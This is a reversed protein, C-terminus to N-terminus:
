VYYNCPITAAHYLISTVNSSSLSVTPAPFSVRPKFSIKWLVQKGTGVPPECGATSGTEPIQQGRRAGTPVACMTCTCPSLVGISMFLFMKKLPFLNFDLLSLTKLLLVSSGQPPRSLSSYLLFWGLPFSPTLLYFLWLTNNLPFFRMPVLYPSVHLYCM